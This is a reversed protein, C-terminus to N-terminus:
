RRLRRRLASGLDFCIEFGVSGMWMGEPGNEPVTHGLFRNIQL